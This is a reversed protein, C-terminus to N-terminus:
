RLSTIPASPRAQEPALTQADILAIAATLHRYNAYYAKTDFHKMARMPDGTHVGSVRVGRSRFTQWVGRGPLPTYKRPDGRRLPSILTSSDPPPTDEAVPTRLSVGARRIACELARDANEPHIRLPGYGLPGVHLLVRIQARADPPTAELFRLASSGKPAFSAFVLTHRRKAVALSEYLSPILAASAEGDGTLNAGIVVREESEGHLTCVFGPIGNKARRHEEFGTCGAARWLGRIVETRDRRDLPAEVIRQLRAVVIEAPLIAVRVPTVDPLEPCDPVAAAALPLLAITVLVSALRKM